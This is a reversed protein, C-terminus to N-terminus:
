LSDFRLHRFRLLYSGARAALLVNRFGFDFQLYTIRRGEISVPSFDAYQHAPKALPYIPTPSGAPPLSISSTTYIRENPNREKDQVKVIYFLM